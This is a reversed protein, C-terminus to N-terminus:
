CLGEPVLITSDNFRQSRAIGAFQDRLDAKIIAATRLLFVPDSPV